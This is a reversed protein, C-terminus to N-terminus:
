PEEPARAISDRNVAARAGLHARPAQGELASRAKTLARYQKEWRPDVNSEGMAVGLGDTTSSKAPERTAQAKDQEM